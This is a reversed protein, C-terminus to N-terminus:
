TMFASFLNIRVAPSLGFPTLLVEWARALIVFLPNGPPHPIGLIHATAIYESTDWFWTTPGLTIGYLAFIAAAAALAALYPPRTAAPPHVPPGASVPTQATPAVQSM